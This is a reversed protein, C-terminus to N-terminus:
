RMLHRHGGSTTRAAQQVVPVVADEEADAAASDESESALDGTDWCTLADDLSLGAGLCDAVTDVFEAEAEELSTESMWAGALSTPALAPDVGFKARVRALDRTLHETANIVVELTGEVYKAKGKKVVSSGQTKGM